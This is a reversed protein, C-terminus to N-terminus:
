LLGENEYTENDSEDIDILEHENALDKRTNTPVDHEIHKYCNNCMDIFSGDIKSKRTAEFPTLRCDCCLCRM